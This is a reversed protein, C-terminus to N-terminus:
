ELEEIYKCNPYNSCGYFQKGAYKGKKATRVILEGNCKPCSFSTSGQSKYVPEVEYIIEEAVPEKECQSITDEKNKVINAIHQEKQAETAQTYPYLLEYISSIEETTLKDKQRKGIKKVTSVIEDRNIVFIDSSEVSVKKLMCRESFVIVSHVPIEEEIQKKLWRIHLQNQMIPNLFYEKHAHGKNQPLMQTWTKCKEDGFIWGSYNKSEFVFVGDKDILLVDIETTEGNEKPLYCNFLFKGGNKEYNKLNKYTLYEGNRGLDHRTSSFSNRTIKYYSTQKFQHNKISYISLLIMAAVIIYLM